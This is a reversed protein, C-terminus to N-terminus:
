PQGGDRNEKELLAIEEGKREISKQLGAVRACTEQYLRPSAVPHIAERLTVAHCAEEELFERDRRLIRLKEALEM